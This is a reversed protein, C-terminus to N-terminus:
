SLLFVKKHTNDTNIQSLRIRRELGGEITKKIVKYCSELLEIWSDDKTPDITFRQDVVQEKENITPAIVLFSNEEHQKITMVLVVKSSPVLHNEKFSLNCYQSNFPDAKIQILLPFEFCAENIVKIFNESILTDIQNQVSVKDIGNERKAEPIYCFLNNVGCGIYDGLKLTLQEIFKFNRELYEETKNYDESLIAVLEEFRSTSM